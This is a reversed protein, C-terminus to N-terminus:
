GDLGPLRRQMASEVILVMVEDMTYPIGGSPSDFAWHGIREALHSSARASVPGRVQYLTAEVVSQRRNPTLHLRYQVAGPDHPHEDRSFISM